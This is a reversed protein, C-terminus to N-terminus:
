RKEVKNEYINGKFEKRLVDLKHAVSADYLKDGFEVVYGGILNPDVATEIDVGKLTDSSAQLKARLDEFAEKSLPTATTVKVSTIGQMKQYADLFESAIDPLLGERSKAVCIRIFGMTMVDYRSGFLLEMISQKKDANIIPSQLMLYLDRNKVAERLSEMDKVITTLKGQEIALDMLSKAYRGAVRTVSM